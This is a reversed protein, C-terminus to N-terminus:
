SGGGMRVGLWLVLPLTLNDLAGTFTEVLSTVAVAAAFAAWAQPSGLSSSSFTSHTTGSLWNAAAQLGAMAVLVSIIFAATGEVTKKAGPWSPPEAPRRGTLATSIGSVLGGWSHGEGLSVATIGCLAACADGVGLSLVGALPLGLALPPSIARWTDGGKQQQQQMVLADLWVPLACGVILLLHTIIFVGSDRADTYRTLYRHVGAWLWTPPPRLARLLELVVMVKTAVALALALFLRYQPGGTMLHLLLPPAFMAVAAAHFLKRLLLNWRHRTFLRVRRLAAVAKARVVAGRTHRRLKDGNSKSTAGRRSGGGSHSPSITSSHSSLAADGNTINDKQNNEDDEDHRPALALLAGLVALWWACLLPAYVAASSGGWGFRPSYLFTTVVWACPEQQLKWWLYPYEIAGIVATVIAYFQAGSLADCSGSQSGDAQATCDHLQNFSLRDDNTSHRKRLASPQQKAHFSKPPFEESPADGDAGEVVVDANPRGHARILRWSLMFIFCCGGLLTKLAAVAGAILQQPSESEMSEAAGSLDGGTKLGLERLLDALLLRIWGVSTLMVAQQIMSRECDGLQLERWREHAWSFTDSIGAAAFLIAADLIGFVYAAICSAAVALTLRFLRHSPSVVAQLSIVASLLAAFPSIFCCVTPVLGAALLPEVM